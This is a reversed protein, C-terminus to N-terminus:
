NTEETEVPKYKAFDKMKLKSFVRSAFYNTSIGSLVDDHYIYTDVQFALPIIPADTLLLKEAEILKNLMDDRTQAAYAEEILANYAESNYACIAPVESFDNNETDKASGSFELAFPALVSFANTSLTQYDMAIVEFNYENTGPEEETGIDRFFCLNYDNISLPNLKVTFGLAEWAAKVNEAVAAGNEDGVYYTYTITGSSVGAQSLLSKAEAANASASLIDGAKERFTDGRLKTAFVPLPVLGTAAKAAPFLDAIATRDLALSLAQRVKANALVGNKTNIYLSYTSFTDQTVVGKTTDPIDALYMIQDDITNLYTGDIELVGTNYDYDYATTRGEADLKFFIHLKYPTVYKDIDTEQSSELSHYFTNRQLTISVGESDPDINKVAFHGNTVITASKKAWYDASYIDDFRSVIDERLPVLAPSACYELFLDYDIKGEFTIELLTSDLAELGLDDITADGRRVARANKINMLMAAAPSEFEPELIRKWAFIVDDAYIQRGDSWGADILQIQMKYENDEENEIIKYNDILVLEMKGDKNIRTLGEYILGFYKAASAQNYMLAPDWNRIEEGVYINIEAGKEQNKNKNKNRNRGSPNTVCGSLMGLALVMALLFALIRKM